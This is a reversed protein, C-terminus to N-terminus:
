ERSEIDRFLTLWKEAIVEPAYEIAIKKGAEGLKEAYERNDLMWIIKESLVTDIGVPVVPGGITGNKTLFRAGGPSCDTAVVPVGMVMAEILSNPLGEFRSSLVFLRANALFPSVDSVAGHFVVFDSVGCSNALEELKLREEGDGVIDLKYDNFLSHVSAFAKILVDFGKEPVLRGIAVISKDVNDKERLLSGKAYCPNPIIMTNQPLFRGYSSRAEDMQFVGATASHMMRKMVVKRWASRTSLDGRECQIVKDSSKSLGLAIGAYPDPGFIVLCDHDIDRFARRFALVRSIREFSGFPRYDDLYFRKVQNNLNVNEAERGYSLVSVQYGSEVLENMVFAAIKQAGGVGLSMLQFLIKM